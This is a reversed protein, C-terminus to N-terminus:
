STIPVSLDRYSPPIPISVDYPYPLRFLSILTSRFPSLLLIIMSSHPTSLAHLLNSHIHRSMLRVPIYFPSLFSSPDYGVSTFLALDVLLYEIVSPLSSSIYCVPIFLYHTLQFLDYRLSFTLASRFIFADSITFCILNFLVFSPLSGITWYALNSLM